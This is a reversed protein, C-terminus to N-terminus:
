SGNIVESIKHIYELSIKHGGNYEFLEVNANQSNLLNYIKRSYEIDVIEDKRGHGIIIPTNKQSTNFRPKDLDSDRFFGAIPFIGGLPDDLHLAFEYCIIAGQSFGIVYVNKSSFNSFVEIQFFDTLMRNPEDIEWEGPSKEYSWSKSNPNGDLLYPAEPFYWQVNDLKLLGSLFQFSTRNGKWGHICVIAKTPNEGISQTNYQIKQTM